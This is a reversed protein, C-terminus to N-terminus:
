YINYLYRSKKKVRFIFLEELKEIYVKFNLYLINQVLMLYDINM